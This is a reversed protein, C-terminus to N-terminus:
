NVLTWGQARYKDAYYKEWWDLDNQTLDVQWRMSTTVTGMEAARVNLQATTSYRGREHDHLRNGTSDQGIYGTTTGKIFYVYVWAQNLPPKDHSVWEHTEMWTDIHNRYFNLKCDPSCYLHGANPQGSGICFEESACNRTQPQAVSLAATPQKPAKVPMLMVKATKTSLSETVDKIEIVERCSKQNDTATLGNQSRNREPQEADALNPVCDPTPESQSSRNKVYSALDDHENLSPEYRNKNATHEELAESSASEPQKVAVTVSM